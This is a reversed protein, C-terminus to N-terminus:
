GESRAEREADRVYFVGTEREELGDMRFLPVFPPWPKVAVVRRAGLDVRIEEFIARLMQARIEAPADQWAEALGALTAGAQEVRDADPDRLGALEGQLEARRRDYEGRSLDGDVYVERLRKLKGQLARRQREAQGRDPRQGDLEALRARWDEPLCLRSVLEGIQDDLPKTQVTRVSSACALGRYPAPCVLRPIPKRGRNVATQGHLRGGCDNCVAVGALLYVRDTRRGWTNGRRHQARVAQVQDFLEQSVIAEHQGPYLEGGGRRHHRVWGAYFPNRLLYSIGERTWKSGRAKDSPPYGARNVLNAIGADTYAGTAYSEFALVVGPATEPDPVDLGEANRKYGWPIISANSKGAKARGAKGKKTERSLNAVYYENFAGLMQLFLMGQPTSYDIQETVSLYGVGWRGLKGLTELQLALNRYFRDLQHTLLIDLRGAECDDLAETFAPRDTVTGTYGEETYERIVAWGREKCFRRMAELQADLSYGEAQEERSVRAYLGARM